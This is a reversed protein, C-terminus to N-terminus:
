ALWTGDPSIAVAVVRDMHGTLVGWCTGDAAWVRVAGDSGGTALWTGDPSIAVAVVRDTHGTLVGWCTGDAAWVRVTQDRDLTALWTGYRSITAAVVPSAHDIALTRILAEPPQAPLPWDPCATWVRLDSRIAPLQEAVGPIHGLRSTLITTLASAPEVPRLL